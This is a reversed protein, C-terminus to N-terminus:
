RAPLHEVGQILREVLKVNLPTGRAMEEQIAALSDKVSEYQRPSMRDRREDLMRRAELLRSHVTRTDIHETTATSSHALAETRKILAKATELLRDIEDQTQSPRSPPM